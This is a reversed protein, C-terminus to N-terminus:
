AGDALQLDLLDRLLPQQVSTGSAQLRAPARARLRLDLDEFFASIAEDFPRGERQGPEAVRGSERPGYFNCLTFRGREIAELKETDFLSLQTAVNWRTVLPTAPPQVQLDVLQIEFRSGAARIPFRRRVEDTMSRGFERFLENQAAAEVFFRFRQGGALLDASLERRQVSDTGFHQSLRSYLLTHRPADAVFTTDGLAVLTVVIDAADAEVPRYLPARYREGVVRAIQEETSGDASRSVALVNQEM